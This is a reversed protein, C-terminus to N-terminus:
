EGDEFAKTGLKILRLINQHSEKAEAETSYRMQYHEWGPIDFVMTEFIIPDGTDSFNHDLGLWITSVRGGKLEDWAVQQYSKDDFLRSYEEFSVPNGNKDYYRVVNM